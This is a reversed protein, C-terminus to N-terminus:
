SSLSNKLNIQSAEQGLRLGKGTICLVHHKFVPVFCKKMTLIEGVPIQFIHITRTILLNQFKRSYWCRIWFCFVWTASGLCPAVHPKKTGERYRALQHLHPLNSPSCKERQSSLPDKSWKRSNSKRYILSVPEFFAKVLPLEYNFKPHSVGCLACHMRTESVLKDGFLDCSLSLLLLIWGHCLNM